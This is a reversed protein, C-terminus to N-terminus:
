LLFRGLFLSTLRKEFVFIFTFVRVLFNSKLELQELDLLLITLFCNLKFYLYSHHVLVNDENSVDKYINKTQSPLLPTPM